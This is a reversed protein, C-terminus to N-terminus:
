RLRRHILHRLITQNYEKEDLREYFESYSIRPFCKINSDVSVNFIPVYNDTSQNFFSCSKSRDYYSHSGIGRHEENGQYFHTQSRGQQDKIENIVGYDYGLLYIEDGKDLIRTAIDLALLGSLAPRGAISSGSKALVTNKEWISPHVRDCTIILPLEKLEKRNTDYFDTYNLCTLFTTDFYKYAYNIGCVFKDELKYKLGTVIGESVSTGGGIIILQM